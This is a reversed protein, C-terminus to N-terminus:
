ENLKLWCGPDRNFPSGTLAYSLCKLGGQCEKVYSCSQCANPYEPINRLNMLAESNYYIDYLERDMLNGAIIPMRRCACLDGNSLVTVLTKGAACSYPTEKTELFDLARKINIETSKFWAKKEKLRISNMLCIYEHTEEPSLVENSLKEYIDIPIFRDSWVRSAKAKKAAKVVHEFERFNSRMATFSVFSTINAKHLIKIANLTKRFNGNGRIKDHTEESGDLSVQIFSPGLKKLYKALSYDILTGNSLIGFSFYARYSAFIELLNLFDNRIFPEGGTINIHGRIIKGNENKHSKLFDVFQELIQVLQEFSLDNCKSQDVYCHSCKQNCRDTIHWQLLLHSPKYPQNNLTINSWLSNDTQM